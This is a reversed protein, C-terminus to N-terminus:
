ARRRRVAPEACRGARPRTSPRSRTSCRRRDACMTPSTLERRRGRAAGRADLLTEGTWRRGPARRGAAAGLIEFASPTSPSPPPRPAGRRRRAAARLRGRQGPPRDVATRRGRRGQAHRHLRLHLHRLGPRGAGVAVGAARTRRASPSRTPRARGAPGDREPRRAAPRGPSRDTLCCRPGPRRGAHVRLREAPYGPDLPVYAGGAKLVALLAVVLEAGRPLASRSSRRRAPARRRDPPPRAPQRAREARAYTLGDTTTASRSRTRAAGPRPPSCTPCPPTPRTAAVRNRDWERRAATRTRGRDAASLDGVPRHPDAAIGELLRECTAPWRAAMTAADFLDTNYEVTGTLEGPATEAFELTLDFSPRRGAASAFTADGGPGAARGRRRADNQLVVLAQFLPTRSPDREPACRRWWGTSRCTRTPSPTWCPRARGAGPLRAFPPDTTWTPACRGPHQRLLRRARELRAATAASPRRHRGRRRRQGSYRALLVQSAAVCCGHVAHRRAAAGARGPAPGGRGPRQVAGTRGATTRCPPGPGTPPCSWRRARRGAHRKWYELQRERRAGTLGERQWVAYDRTSCRCRRCGPQRGALSPRTCRPWSASSCAWPGATPSSTTCPSCCRTGTPPWACCCPGCCRGRPSTSPAAWIRGCCSTWGRRGPRRPCAASTRRPWTWRPPPAYSRIPGARPPPSPPACRRTAPSSSTRARRRARGRRARRAAAARRVHHVRHGRVRVPGPVM